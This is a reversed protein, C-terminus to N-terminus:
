MHRNVITQVRLLMVVIEACGWSSQWGAGSHGYNHMVPFSSDNVEIYGGRELRSGSM